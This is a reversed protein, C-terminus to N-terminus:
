PQPTHMPHTSRSYAPSLTATCSVCAVWLVLADHRCIPTIVSPSQPSIDVRNHADVCAIGIQHPFVTISPPAQDRPQTCGM